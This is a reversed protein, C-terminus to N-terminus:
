VTAAIRRFLREYRCRITGSCRNFRRALASPSGGEELYIDVLRRDKRPLRQRISEVRRVSLRQERIEQRVAALHLRLAGHFAPTRGTTDMAHQQEPTLGHFAARAVLWMRRYALGYVFTTLRAKQADFRPMAECLAIFCDNVLEEPEAETRGHGELKLRIAERVKRAVNFLIRTSAHWLAEPDTPVQPPASSATLVTM